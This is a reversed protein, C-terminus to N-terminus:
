GATRRSCVPDDREDHRCIMRERIIRADRKVGATHELLEVRLFTPPKGTRTLSFLRQREGRLFVLPNLVGDVVRKTGRDGQSIVWCTEEGDQQQQQQGAPAWEGGDETGEHEAPQLGRLVEGDEGHAGASSVDLNAHVWHGCTCTPRTERRRTYVLPKTHDRTKCVSTTTNTDVHTIPM